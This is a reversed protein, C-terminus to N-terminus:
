DGFVQSMLPLLSIARRSGIEVDVPYVSGVYTHIPLENPVPRFPAISVAVPEHIAIAAGTRLGYRRQAANPSLIEPEVSIISTSFREDATDSRISMMQGTRLHPQNDPSFFAVASVDGGIAQTQGRSDVIVAKGSAYVPVHIIWVTLGSVILL